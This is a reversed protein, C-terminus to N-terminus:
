RQGPANSPSPSRSRQNRDQQSYSIQGNSPTTEAQPSSPAATAATSQPADVPASPNETPSARRAPEIRQAFSNTSSTASSSHMNDSTSSKSAVATDTTNNGTAQPEKATEEEFAASIEAPTLTTSPRYRNSLGTTSSQLRPSRVSADNETSSSAGSATVPAPASPRRALKPHPSFAAAIANPDFHVTSTTRPLGRERQPSSPSAGEATDNRNSNSSTASTSVTRTFVRRKESHVAHSISATRYLELQLDTAATLLTKGTAVEDHNALFTTQLFSLVAHKLHPSELLHVLRGLSLHHLSQLRQERLPGTNSTSVLAQPVSNHQTHHQRLLQQLSIPLIHLYDTLVIDDWYPCLRVTPHQLIQNNQTYEVYLQRLVLLKLRPLNVDVDIHPPLSTDLNIYASLNKWKSLLIQKYAAYPLDSGETFASFPLTTAGHYLARLTEGWFLFFFPVGPVNKHEYSKLPHSSNLHRSTQLKKLFSPFIEIEEKALAPTIHQLTPTPHSLRIALTLAALFNGPTTFIDQPFLFSFADNPSFNEVMRLAHKQQAVAAQETALAKQEAAITKTALAIAKDDQKRQADALETQADRLAGEATELAANATALTKKARAHCEALLAPQHKRLISQLARLTETKLEATNLQPLIVTAFSQLQETLPALVNSTFLLELIRGHKIRYEEMISAALSFLHKQGQQADPSTNASASSSAAAPTHNAKSM